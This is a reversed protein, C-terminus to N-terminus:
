LEKRSGNWLFKTISRMFGDNKFRKVTRELRKMALDFNHSVPAHDDVWPLDVSYRGEKNFSVTKSFNEKVAQERESRDSKLIPDKIGLVDLEWLESLKAESVFMSVTKTAADHREIAPVKGNLTWGLHTEFATLGNSLEYKRGTMIKGFIDSGILLGISDDFNQLDSDVDDLSINKDRLEKFWDARKIKPLDSCIVSKDMVSFNCAYDGKLNKVRALYIGHSEVSTSVGGFLTHAVEVERTQEYGLFKAVESKIYSRHSGSDIVARVVKESTDSYLVVRLTQLYVEPLNCFNSLNHEKVKIETKSSQCVLTCHHKGCVDCKIKVKCFQARHGRKLCKFCCRNEKILNKLVELSLEKAKGCCNNEHDGACFICKSHKEEKAFLVSATPLDPTMVTRTKTKQKERREDSAAISFGSVAMHFREENEVEARLFNLLKTLRDASRAGETTADGSAPCRQWTKLIEEPLSSEVLPYLMTTCNDTTVGLTELARIHASLQDYVISVSTKHGKNTANKLVLSLLERVYYEVLLDERGFRNKLSNFAKEYNEATTPYGQVVNEAKSGKEMAQKLYELKDERAIGRDEHIKKFHSWFQLWKSVSGDFKPIELTPRKFPKECVQPTQGTTTLLNKNETEQEIISRATLYNIKYEEHSEIETEIESEPADSALLLEVFKTNVCELEAMRAELLQVAIRQESMPVDTNAFKTQFNNYCKTFLSRQVKRSKRAAEM